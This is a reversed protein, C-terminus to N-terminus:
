LEQPDCVEAPSLAESAADARVDRSRYGAARHSNDCFPPNATAGCRCLALRTKETVVTGDPTTVRLRERLYLPGNRMPVVTTVDEAAEAAQGDLRDYRLAGTPCAAVADAIVDVAAGDVTIWPRKAVDFVGPLMRTCIGTHICRVADWHVVIADNQYDKAAM